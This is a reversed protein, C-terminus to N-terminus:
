FTRMMNNTIAYIELQPNIIENVQRRAKPNLIIRRDPLYGYSTNFIEKLEELTWKEISQQGSAITSMTVLYHGDQSIVSTVVHKVEITEM